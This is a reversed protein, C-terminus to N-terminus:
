NTRRRRRNRKKGKARRRTSKGPSNAERFVRRSENVNEASFMLKRLSEYSIDEEVSQHVLKAMGDVTAIMSAGPGSMWSLGLATLSAATMEKAREDDDADRLSERVTKLYQARVWEDLESIDRDTLPRLHILLESGDEQKLHIPRRARNIHSGSM